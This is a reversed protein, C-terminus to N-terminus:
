RRAARRQAGVLARLDRISLKGSRLLPLEDVEVWSATPPVAGPPLGSALAARRLREREVPLATHVVATPEGAAGPLTVLALRVDGEPLASRLADEIRAHAVLRGEIEVFRDGRDVVVLFGDRDLAGVDGTDYWGAQLTAADLGGETLYGNMRGPGRVLVRGREEPECLQGDAPRVVRVAVGPLARGVTGPRHNVQRLGGREVDPLDVSVVPGLETAGYGEYLECGLRERWARALGAPLHEGGSIALRLTAVHERSLGQLWAALLAPTGLLVTARGDRLAAGVRAADSTPGLPVLAAGHLLPAWLAVTHGLAHWPPLPGLVVDAASVEGVVGLARVNSAIAAHSLEVARPAATTGSTALVVAPDGSRPLGRLRREIWWAPRRALRRARGLRAVAEDRLEELELLGAEAAWAPDEWGPECRWARTTLV